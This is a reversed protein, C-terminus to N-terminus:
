HFTSSAPITFIVDNMVDNRKHVERQAQNRQGPRQGGGQLGRPRARRIHDGTERGFPPKPSEVVQSAAMPDRSDIVHVVLKEPVRQGLRVEVVVM